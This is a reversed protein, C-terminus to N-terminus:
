EALFMSASSAEILSIVQAFICDLLHGLVIINVKDLRPMPLEDKKMRDNNGPDKNRICRVVSVSYPTVILVAKAIATQCFRRPNEYTYLANDQTLQLM